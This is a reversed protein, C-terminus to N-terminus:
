RTRVPGSSAGGGGGGPLSTALAAVAGAALPVLAYTWGSPGALDEEPWADGQAPRARTTSRPMAATGASRPPIVVEAGAPVPVTRLQAQAPLALLLALALTLLAKVVM